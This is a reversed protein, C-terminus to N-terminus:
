AGAKGRMDDHLAKSKAARAAGIARTCKRREARREAEQARKWAPLSAVAPHRRQWWSSIESIMRDLWTM